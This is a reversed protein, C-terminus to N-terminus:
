STAQSRLRAASSRDESALTGDRLRAGPGPQLDVEDAGVIEHDDECRVTLGIPAGCGRHLLVTPPGFEDALNEDGWKTLAVLIPLLSNGKGTLRYRHRTRAGPERYPETTLIGQAVLMRLREGLLNSACGLTQEFESFREAGFWIERLILITWKEGVLELTRSISCSTTDYDLRDNM